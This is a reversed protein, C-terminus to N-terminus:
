DGNGRAVGCSADHALIYPALISHCRATHYLLTEHGSQPGRHTMHMAQPYITPRIEVPSVLGVLYIDKQKCISSVVNNDPRWWPGSSTLSPPSVGWTLSNIYSGDDQGGADTPLPTRAATKSVVEARDTRDTELALFASRVTIKCVFASALDGLDPRGKM